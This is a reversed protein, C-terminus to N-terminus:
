LKYYIPLIVTILQYHYLPIMTNFRGTLTNCDKCTVYLWFIEYKIVADMNAIVADIHM